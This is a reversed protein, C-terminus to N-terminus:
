VLTALLGALAPDVIQWTLSSLPAGPVATTLTLKTEPTGGDLADVVFLGKGSIFLTDDAVVGNTQFLATASTFTIGDGAVAGDDGEDRLAGFGGGAAVDSTIQYAIGSRPATLTAPTVDIRDAGKSVVSFVGADTDPEYIRLIHGIQVDGIDAVGIKFTDADITEGDDANTILTSVSFPSTADASILFLAVGLLKSLTLLELLADLDGTGGFITIISSALGVDVADVRTANTFLKTIQILRTEEGHSSNVLIRIGIADAYDADSRGLRKEGVHRGLLDLQEGISDGIGRENLLAFLVDEIEQFRAGKIDWLKGLNVAAKQWSPLRKKADATHTTIKDITM